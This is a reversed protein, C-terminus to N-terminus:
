SLSSETGKALSEAGRIAANAASLMRRALQLPEPPLAVGFCAAAGVGVGAALGPATTKVPEVIAFLTIVSGHSVLSVNVTECAFKAPLKVSASLLGPCTASVGVGAVPGALVTYVTRAEDLTVFGAGDGNVIVAVPPLPM